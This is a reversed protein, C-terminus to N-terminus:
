RNDSEIVFSVQVHDYTGGARIKFTTKGVQAGVDSITISPHQVYHQLVSDSKVWNFQIQNSNYTWALLTLNCRYGHMLYAGANDMGMMSEYEPEYDHGMEMETKYERGTPGNLDEFGENNIQSHAECQITDRIQPAYLVMGNPFVLTKIDVNVEEKFAELSHFQPVWIMDPNINLRDVGTKSANWSLNTDKWAAYIWGHIDAIGNDPDFNILNMLSYSMHLQLIDGFTNVPRADKGPYQAILKDVLKQENGPQFGPRTGFKSPERPHLKVNELPKEHNSVQDNSQSLDVAVANPMDNSSPQFGTVAMNGKLTNYSRVGDSSADEPTEDM